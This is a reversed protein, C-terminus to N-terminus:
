KHHLSFKIFKIIVMTTAGDYIRIFRDIEDFRFHLPEPGMLTKCSIDNILNNEHSKKDRFINDIDFDEIKTIDDFYYCTRNKIRNKKLENHELKYKEHM